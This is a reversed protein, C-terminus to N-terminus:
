AVPRPHNNKPPQPPGPPQVARVHSFRYDAHHAYQSLPCYPCFVYVRESRDTPIFRLGIHRCRAIQLREIIRSLLSLNM